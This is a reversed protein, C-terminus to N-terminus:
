LFSSVFKVRGKGTGVGSSYSISLDGCSNLQRFKQTKEEILVTYFDLLFCTKEKM